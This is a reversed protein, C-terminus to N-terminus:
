DTVPPTATCIALRRNWKIRKGRYFYLSVKRTRRHRIIYFFRDIIFLEFSKSKRLQRKAAM